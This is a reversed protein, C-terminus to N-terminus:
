PGKRKAIQKVKLIKLRIYPSRSKAEIKEVLKATIMVPMGLRDNRVTGDGATARFATYGSHCGLTVFVLYSNANDGARVIWGRHTKTDGKKANVFPTESYAMANATLVLAISASLALLSLTKMTQGDMESDPTNLISRGLKRMVKAARQSM